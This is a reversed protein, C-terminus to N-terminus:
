KAIKTVIAVISQGRNVFKTYSDIVVQTTKGINGKSELNAVYKRCKDMIGTVAAIIEDSQQMTKTDAQSIMVPANRIFELAEKCQLIQKRISPDISDNTSKIKARLDTDIRSLQNLYTDIKSSENIVAKIYRSYDERLVDPTYTKSKNRLNETVGEMGDYAKQYDRVIRFLISVINNRLTDATDISNKSHHLLEEMDAAAKKLKLNNKALSTNKKKLEAIEKDRDTIADNLAQKDLDGKKMLIENKREAIEFKRALEDREKRLTKRSKFKERMKGWWTKIGDIIRGVWTVFDRILKGFEFNATISKAAFGVVGEGAYVLSAPADVYLDHIKMDECSIIFDDIRYM